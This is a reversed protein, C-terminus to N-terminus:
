IGEFYFSTQDKPRVNTLTGKYHRLDVPQFPYKRCNEENLELGLGVGEPIYIQGRDFVVRENTLERRWSVDTLCIELIRFGTLSAALHLTAANAVPGSPNHPALAIYCTEAMAAMKRIASIGGCHSVDPQAYDACGKELFERFQNLSYIREGGAIPVPSKRHVEALADLNDPPTPEEFFMPAFTKLENAIKIGTAIDFRGHGEILLDVNKGVAGRVAEVIELSRHLEASSINMYAKGFPDWKLATIGLSVAKKAAQAFEEPTKAGAFWVNAYMRISERVKGGLMEYVPVGCIKAKIDWLAIDVASLASQLVPGVRWYSDRYLEHDIREVERPDQGILVRKIDEIAGLLAHEKYELTGEGIGSVGEDTEIKIFVFNTRYTFVNFTKINTIKM